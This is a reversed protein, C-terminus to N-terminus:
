ANVTLRGIATDMLAERRWPASLAEVARRGREALSRRLEPSAALARLKTAADELDPEAWTQGSARYVGYADDVQVPKSRILLEPLGSMFEMNGSWGTALAPVDALFAEALPLGFGESRHPSLIASASAVLRRM